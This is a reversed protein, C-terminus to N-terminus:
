DSVSQLDQRLVEAEGSFQSFFNGKRNKGVMCGCDVHRGCLSILMMFKAAVVTIGSGGPRCGPYLTNAEDKAVTVVKISSVM